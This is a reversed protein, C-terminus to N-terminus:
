GCEMADSGYINEFTKAIFASFNFKIIIKWVIKDFFVKKNRENKLFTRLILLIHHSLRECSLVLPLNKNNYILPPEYIFDNM